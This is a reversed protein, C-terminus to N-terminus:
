GESSGEPCIKALWLAFHGCLSDEKSYEANVLGPHVCVFVCACM